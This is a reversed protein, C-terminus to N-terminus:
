DAPRGFVPLDILEVESRDKVQAETGCRQCVPRPLCTEIHVRLGGFFVPWDRVALVTVFDHGVLRRCMLTPDSTV